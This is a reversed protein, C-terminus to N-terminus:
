FLNNIICTPDNQKNQELQKIFLFLIGITGMSNFDLFVQFLQLIREYEWETREREELSEIYQM